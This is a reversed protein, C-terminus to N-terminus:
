SIRKMSFVYHNGPLFSIPEVTVKYGQHELDEKLEEDDWPKWKDNYALLINKSGFWNRNKVYSYAKKTSESLAWTSLFLDGEVILSDLLPLPVLHIKRKVIGDRTGDLLRVHDPGFVTSLYVYQICSFLPLDLIAYRTLNGLNRFVRALNGYGGGFEVVAKANGVSWGTSREFRALHYLQHASNIATSLKQRAGPLHASAGEGIWKKLVEPNRWQELYAWQEAHAKRNTFVMSGNIVPHDLFSLDFDKLFYDEVTRINKSWAPDVFDSHVTHGRIKEYTARATKLAHQFRQRATERESLSSKPFLTKIRQSLVAKGLWSKLSTMAGGGNM